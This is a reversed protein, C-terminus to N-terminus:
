KVGSKVDFVISRVAAPCDGEDSFYKRMSGLLAPLWDATPKAEALGVLVHGFAKPPILSGLPRLLDDAVAPGLNALTAGVAQFAIVAKTPASAMRDLLKLGARAWTPDVLLCCVAGVLQDPPVLVDLAKFSLKVVNDLDRRSVCMDLEELLVEREDPMTSTPMPGADLVPSTSATLPDVSGTTSMAKSSKARAGAHREWERRVDDPTWLKGAVLLHVQYHVYYQSASRIWLDEFDDLEVISVVPIRRGTKLPAVRDARKVTACLRD